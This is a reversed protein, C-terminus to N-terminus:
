IEMGEGRRQQAPKAASQPSAASDTEGPNITGSQAASMERKKKVAELHLAASRIGQEKAAAATAQTIQKLSNGYKVVTALTPGDPEGDEQLATHLIEGSALAVSTSVSGTKRMRQQEIIREGLTEFRPRHEPGAAPKNDPIGTDAQRDKDDQM